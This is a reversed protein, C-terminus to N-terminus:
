GWTHVQKSPDPRVWDDIGVARPAPIPPLAHRHMLRLLTRVSTPMRLTHALRAGGHGGTAFAIAQLMDTLRATRRAYPLVLPAWREAFIKRPCQAGDCFFRRVRVLLTVVRSACPADAITRTYWSHPRTSRTQCVPCPPSHQTSYAHVTIHQDGVEVTDLAMGDLPLLVQAPLM